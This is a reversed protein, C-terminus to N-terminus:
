VCSCFQSLLKGETNRTVCVCLVTDRLAAYVLTTPHVTHGQGQYSELQHYHSQPGIGQGAGGTQGSSCWFWQHSSVHNMWYLCSIFLLLFFFDNSLAEHKNVHSMNAMARQIKINIRSSILRTNVGMMLSVRTEQLGAHSKVVRSYM